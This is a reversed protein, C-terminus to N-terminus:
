CLLLRHALEDLADPLVLFRSQAAAAEHASRGQEAVPHRRVSAWPGRAVAAKRGLRPAIVEVDREGTRPRVARDDEALELAQIVDDRQGQDLREEPRLAPPE